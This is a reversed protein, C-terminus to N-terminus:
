KKPWFERLAECIIVIFCVVIFIKMCLEVMIGILKQHIKRFVGGFFLPCKGM